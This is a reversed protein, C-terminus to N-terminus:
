CVYKHAGLETEPKGLGVSEELTMCARVYRDVALMNTPVSAKMPESHQHWNMQGLFSQGVDHLSARVQRRGVHKDPCQGVHGRLAQCSVPDVLLCVDVGQAHHHPLHECTRDVKSLLIGRSSEDRSVTGAVQVPVTQAHM